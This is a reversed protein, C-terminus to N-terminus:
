EAFTRAQVKVGTGRWSNNNRSSIEVRDLKATAFWDEIEARSHYFATPAVLHDFVNWLNESFSYGSIACLYDAYPLWRRLASGASRSAPRYLTKLAIYLPLSILFAIAQTLFKPLRSTVHIRVPDVILEIWRNGEKGYVWIAVRGGPQLHSVVSLFGQKPDPLHHLVGISYALDFPTAFPLRYIDAQVVHANPLSRTNQYASEVADSLDVGIVDAAGFQAALFLHRGKGCGADLVVRHAFATEDLPQIWDLFEARDAATLESYHTWEYGFAAATAQKAVSLEPSLFRPIGRIIPFSSRCQGCVLDGELIEGDLERKTRLDLGRKCEPCALYPLLTPKM